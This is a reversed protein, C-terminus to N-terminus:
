ARMWAPDAEFEAMMAWATFLWESAPAQAPHVGVAHQATGGAVTRGDQLRRGDSFRREQEVKNVELTPTEM